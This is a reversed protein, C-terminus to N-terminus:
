TGDEDEEEVCELSPSLVSPGFSNIPITNQSLAALSCLQRYYRSRSEFNIQITKTGGSWTARRPATTRGVTRSRSALRAAKM